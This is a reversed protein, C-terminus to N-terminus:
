NEFTMIFFFTIVGTYKGPFAVIFLFYLPSKLNKTELKEGRCPPRKLILQGCRGGAATPMALGVVFRL